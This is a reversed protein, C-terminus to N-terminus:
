NEFLLSYQVFKGCEFNPDKNKKRMKLEKLEKKDNEIKKLLDVLPCRNCHSNEM